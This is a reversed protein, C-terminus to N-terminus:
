GTTLRHSRCTTFRPGGRVLLEQAPPPVRDLPKTTPLESIGLTYPIGTDALILIEKTPHNLFRQQQEHTGLPALFPHKLLSGSIEHYIM